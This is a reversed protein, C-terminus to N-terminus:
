GSRAPLRKVAAQPRDVPLSRPRLRSRRRAPTRVPRGPAQLEAALRDYARRDLPAPIAAVEPRRAVAAEAHAPAADVEDRVAPPLALAALLPLAFTLLCFSRVHMCCELFNPRAANCGALTSPYPRPLEQNAPRRSRGSQGHGSGHRGSAHWAAGGSGRSHRTVAASRM